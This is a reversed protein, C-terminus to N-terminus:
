TKKGNEALWEKWQSCFENCWCYEKCFMPDSTTPIVFYQDPQKMRAVHAYAQNSTSYIKIARQGGKKCVRYSTRAWTDNSECPPLDDDDLSESSVLRKVSSEIFDKQQEYGWVKVPVYEVEDQPYSLPSKEASFKNWDLYFTVIYANNIWIDYDRLLYAYINLQMEWHDMSNEM